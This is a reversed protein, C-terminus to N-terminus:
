HKKRLTLRNSRSLSGPMLTKFEEEQLIPIYIHLYVAIRKLCVEVWSCSYARKIRRLLETRRPGQFKTSILM